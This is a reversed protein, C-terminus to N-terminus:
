HNLATSRALIIDAEALPPGANLESLVAGWGGTAREDAHYPSLAPQVEEPEAGDSAATFGVLDCVLVTVVKRERWSRAAATDLRRGCDGCFRMSEANGFGCSRCLVMAM